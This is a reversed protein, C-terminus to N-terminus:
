FNVIELLNGKIKDRNCVGSHNVRFFRCSMDGCESFWQLGLLLLLSINGQEIGQEKHTSMEGVGGGCLTM